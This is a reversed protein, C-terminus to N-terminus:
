PQDGSSRQTTATKASKDPLRVGAARLREQVRRIDVNRPTVRDKVAIAAATGAAQGMLMTLNHTRFRVGGSSSKGVALLNDVKDALMSRYPIEYHYPGKGGREQVVIVDDNSIDRKEGWERSPDFENDISRGARNLTM